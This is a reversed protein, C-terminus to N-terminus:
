EDIGDSAKKSWFTFFGGLMMLSLATLILPWTLGPGTLALEPTPGPEPISDPNDVPTPDADPEEEIIEPEETPQPEPEEAPQPEPEPEPNVVTISTTFEFSQANDAPSCGQESGNPGAAHRATVGVINLNDEVVVRFEIPTSQSGHPLDGTTGVPIDSGDSLRISVDARECDQRLHNWGLQEYVLEDMYCNDFIAGTVTVTSGPQTEHPDQTTAEVVGETLNFRGSHSPCTPSTLFDRFNEPTLGPFRQEGSNDLSTSSTQVGVIEKAPTPETEEAGAPSALAVLIAVILVGLATAKKM